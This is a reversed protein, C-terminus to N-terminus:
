LNLDFPKQVSSCQAVCCPQSSKRKAGAEFVDSLSPGSCSDLLLLLGIVAGFLIESNNFFRGESGDNFYWEKHKHGDLAEVKREELSKQKEEAMVDETHRKHSHQM